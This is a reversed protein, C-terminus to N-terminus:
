APLKAGMEKSKPKIQRRASARKEIAEYDDDNLEISSKGTEQLYKETELKIFAKANENRKTGQQIHYEKVFRARDGNFILSPNLFYWNPDSAKAIFQKTVLEQIGRYFVAQSMQINGHFDIQDYKFFVKDRNIAKGQVERLLIAFTKIGSPSLEFYVTIDKTYLKIFEEADVEIKQAITTMGVTEGTQTDVLATGSAVGVRKNKVKITLVEKELFPNEKYKILGTKTTKIAEHILTDTM